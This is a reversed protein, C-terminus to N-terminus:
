LALKKHLFANPALVAHNHREELKTSTGVPPHQSKGKFDPSDVGPGTRPDELFELIALTQEASPHRTRKIWAQVAQRDIGLYRALESQRGRKESCWREIRSILRETRTEM